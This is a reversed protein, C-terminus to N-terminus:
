YGKLPLTGRQVETWSRPTSATSVLVNMKLKLNEANQELSPLLAERTVVHVTATLVFLLM